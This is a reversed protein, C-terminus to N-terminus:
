MVCEFHSTKSECVFATQAGTIFAIFIANAQVSFWCSEPLSANSALKLKIEVSFSECSIRLKM